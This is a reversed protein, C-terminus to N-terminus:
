GEAKGVLIIAVPTNGIKWHLVQDNEGVAEVGPQAKAEDKWLSLVLPHPTGSAKKSLEMLAEFAPAAAAGPDEALPSLIAFDRQPAAGQHDGNMPYFSFRLTYLGPKIQQGRRDRARAPYRVVGLLAGHPVGAWSVSQEAGGGAPEAKVFWLDCLVGGDPKLIQVGNALNLAAAEAPPAGVSEAKYQAHAAVTLTAALATLILTRM